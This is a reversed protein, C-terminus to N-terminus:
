FRYTIEAGYMRPENRIASTFGFASTQETYDVLFDEDGLNTGFLAVQWADDASRYTM